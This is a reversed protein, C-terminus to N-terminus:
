IMMKRTAERSVEYIEIDVEKVVKKRNEMM